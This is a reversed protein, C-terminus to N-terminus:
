IMEKIQIFEINNKLLIMEMLRRSMTRMDFLSRSFQDLVSNENALFESLTM